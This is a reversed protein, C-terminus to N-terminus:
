VCFWGGVLRSVVVLHKQRQVQPAGVVALVQAQVLVGGWHVVDRVVCLDSAGRLWGARWRTLEDNVDQNTHALEDDM